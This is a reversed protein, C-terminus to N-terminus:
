TKELDTWQKMEAHGGQSIMGSDSLQSVHRGRCSSVLILLHKDSFQIPCGLRNDNLVQAIQHIM